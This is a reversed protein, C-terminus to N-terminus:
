LSGFHNLGYRVVKIFIMRGNAVVERMRKLAAFSIGVPWLM